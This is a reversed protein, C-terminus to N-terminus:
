AHLTEHAITMAAFAWHVECSTQGHMSAPAHRGCAWFGPQQQQQGPSFALMRHLSSHKVRARLNSPVILGVAAPRMGGHLMCPLQISHVHCLHVHSVCRQHGQQLSLCRQARACLTSKDACHVLLVLPCPRGRAIFLVHRWACLCPALRALGAAWTPVRM